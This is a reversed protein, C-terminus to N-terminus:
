KYLYYVLFIKSEGCFVTVCEEAIVIIDDHAWTVGKRNLREGLSNILALLSIVCINM